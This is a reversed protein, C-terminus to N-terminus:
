VKVEFSIVSDKRFSRWATNQYDYVAIIDPGNLRFDDRGEAPVDDSKRSCHMTRETGRKTTFTVYVDKFTELANQLNEILNQNKM